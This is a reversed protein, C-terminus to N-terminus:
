ESHTHQIFERIKDRMARSQLNLGLTVQFGLDRLAIAMDSADNEPNELENANVYASNGIVLAVRKSALAQSTAALIAMVSFAAIALSSFM